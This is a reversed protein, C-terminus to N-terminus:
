KLLPEIQAAAEDMAQQASEKGQMALAVQTGIIQDIKPYNPVPTRAKATALQQLFTAYYPHIATVQSKLSQLVTLQGAQLLATQASKSLMFRVFQQAAAKNKTSAIVNIDEGGVVSISGGSGAPVLAQVPKFAPYVSGWIPNMWPGDLTMAYNGKPVGDFGSIGGSAGLMVDPIAGQKYLDTLFQVAAVTKPGNIYGKATTNTANTIAGGGSWIWPLVNWGGTGGDAYLQIGQAKLLPADALMDAWTKPPTTIGAKAFADMNAFMVRTNTDLPLGYYHGGYYNTSLPGQFVLKSLKAFDAMGGDLKAFIKGQAFTPVWAVDSRVVDPLTKSLVGTLLKQYLDDHSFAVHKVIINPNAKQFAPIITKELTPSESASYSTWFTITVKKSSANAASSGAVGAVASILVGVTFLAISAKRERYKGLQM